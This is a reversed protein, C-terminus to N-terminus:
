NFSYWGDGLDLDSNEQREGSVELRLGQLRRKIEAANTVEFFLELAEVL